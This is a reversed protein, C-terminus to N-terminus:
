GAPGESPEDTAVEGGRAYTAILSSGAEWEEPTMAVAEIPEFVDYVADGLIRIRQWPDKGAFDPSIVVVDIDSGDHWTGDAYSGFLVIREARIGQEQLARRFRRVAAIAAVKDM